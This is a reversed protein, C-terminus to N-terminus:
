MEEFSILVEDLDDDDDTDEKEKSDLTCQMDVISSQKGRTHAPSCSRQGGSGSRNETWKSVTSLSRTRQPRLSGRRNQDSLGLPSSERDMVMRLTVNSPRRSERGQSTATTLPSSARSISLTEVSSQRSLMTPTTTTTTPSSATPNMSYPIPTRSRSTTPRLSNSRSPLPPPPPAPPARFASFPRTSRAYRHRDSHLANLTQDSTLTDHIPRGVLMSDSQYRKHGPRHAGGNASTALRQVGAHQPPLWLKAHWCVPNGLTKEQTNSLDVRYADVKYVQPEALSSRMEHRLSQIDMVGPEGQAQKTSVGSMNVELPSMVPSASLSMPNQTSARPPPLSGGSSSGSSDTSITTSRRPVPRKSPPDSSIVSSRPREQPLALPTVPENLSVTRARVHCSTTDTSMFDLPAQVTLPSSCPLTGRPTISVLSNTRCRRAQQLGKELSDYPRERVCRSGHKRTHDMVNGDPEALPNFVSRFSLRRSRDSYALPPSLDIWSTLLKLPQKYTPAQAQEFTHTAM